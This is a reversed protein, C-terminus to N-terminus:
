VAESERGGKGSELSLEVLSQNQSGHGAGRKLKDLSSEWRGLLPFGRKTDDYAAANRGEGSVPGADHTASCEREREREREFVDSDLFGLKMPKIPNPLFFQPSLELLQSSTDMRM